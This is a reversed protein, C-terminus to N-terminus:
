GSFLPRSPMPAPLRCAAVCRMSAGWFGLLNAVISPEAVFRPWEPALPLVWHRPVWHGADKKADNM